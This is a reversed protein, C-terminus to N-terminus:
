KIELMPFFVTRVIWQMPRLDTHILSLNNVGYQSVLFENVLNVNIRQCDGSWNRM